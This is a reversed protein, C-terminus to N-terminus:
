KILVLFYKLNYSLFSFRVFNIKIKQLDASYENLVEYNISPGKFANSVGMTSQLMSNLPSNQTELEEYVKLEKSFTEYLYFLDNLTIKSSIDLNSLSLKYHNKILMHLEDLVELAEIKEILIELNLKPLVKRASLPIGRLSSTMMNSVSAILIELGDIKAKYEKFREKRDKSIVRSNECNITYELNGKFVVSKKSDEERKSNTPFYFMFDKLIINMDSHSFKKLNEDVMVRIMHFLGHSQQLRQILPFSILLKPSLVKLFFSPNSGKKSTYSVEIAKSLSSELMRASSKKLSQSVGLSSLFNFDTNSLYIPELPDGYIRRSICTKSNYYELQNIELKEILMGWKLEQEMSQFHSLQINELQFVLSSSGPKAENQLPTWIFVLKEFFNEIGM